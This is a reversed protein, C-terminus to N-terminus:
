NLILKREGDEEPQLCSSCCTCEVTGDERACDVQLMELNGDPERLACIEDSVQGSFNNYSFFGVETEFTVNNNTISSYEVFLSLMM